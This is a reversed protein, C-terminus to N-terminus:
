QAATDTEQGDSVETIENLCITELFEVMEVDGAPVVIAAVGPLATREHERLWEAEALRFHGQDPQSPWEEPWGYLRREGKLHLVVYCDPNNSFSSYWESPYSTERTFGILRFFSHLLDNNSVYVAILALVVAILVAGVIQSDQTWFFGSGFLGAILLLGRSVAQVVITFMLAQLAREVESPKPHSTLSYFVTAAVFGPLLFTLTAVVESTAWSMYLVEWGVAWERGVTLAHVFRGRVASKAAM